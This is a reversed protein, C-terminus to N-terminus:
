STGGSPLKSVDSVLVNEFFEAEAVYMELRTALQRSDSKM